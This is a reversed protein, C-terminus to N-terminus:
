RPRRGAVKTFGDEDMEPPPRARPENQVPADVMKADDNDSWDEGDVSAEDDSQPGARTIAAPLSRGKKSKWREYLADVSAYLGRACEERIRLIDRAVTVESEDEVVVGFEDEMIQLLLDEM